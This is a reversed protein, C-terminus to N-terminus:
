RVVFQTKVGVGKALGRLANYVAQNAATILAAWLPSLHGCSWAILTCVHLCITMYFESTKVGSYFQGRNKKWLSRGLMYSDLVASLAIMFQPNPVRPAWCILLLLAVAVSMYFETSLWFRRM